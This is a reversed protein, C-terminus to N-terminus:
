GRSGVIMFVPNLGKFATKGALEYSKSVNVILAERFVGLEKMKEVIMSAVEIRAANVAIKKVKRCAIELMEEIGKTGGFFVISYDYDRLFEKGDMNLVEVNEFGALIKKSEKFAEPNREVAFVKRVYPAFFASVRGTGSGIDVFIDEQSPMLKSFVVGAVEDKTYKM